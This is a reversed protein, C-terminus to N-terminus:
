AAGWGTQSASPATPHLCARSRRSYLSLPPPCCPVLHSLLPRSRELWSLQCHLAPAAALRQGWAAAAQVWSVVLSTTTNGTRQLNASTVAPTAAAGSGVGATANLLQPSLPVVPGCLGGNGPRAGLTVPLPEAFGGETWSPRPIAGACPAPGTLRRGAGSIGNWALVFAGARVGHRVRAVREGSLNNGRLGLLLLAPLDAAWAPPLTGELQNNSLDMHQLSALGPLAPPLSGQLGLGTLNLGVVQGGACAVGKWATGTANCPDTGGAWPAGPLRATAM